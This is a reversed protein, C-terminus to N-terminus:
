KHIPPDVLKTTDQKLYFDIKATDGKKILIPKTYTSKYGVSFGEFYHKGPNINLIYKGVRDNMTRPRKDAKVFAGPLIEKSTYDYIVGLVVPETDRHSNVINLNYSGDKRIIIGQKTSCSMNLGITLIAAIKILKRYNMILQKADELLIEKQNVKIGM